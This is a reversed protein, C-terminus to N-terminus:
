PCPQLVDNFTAFDRGDPTNLAVYPELRDILGKWEPQGLDGRTLHFGKIWKPLM